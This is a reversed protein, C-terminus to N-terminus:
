MNLNYFEKREMNYNISMYCAGGHLPFSIITNIDLKSEKCFLAIRIIRQKSAKDYFGVYQQNYTSLDIPEPINSLEPKIFSYMDTQVKLMDRNSINWFIYDKGYEKEYKKMIESFYGDPIEESEPIEELYKMYDDMDKEFMDTDQITLYSVGDKYHEKVETPTFIRTMTAESGSVSCASIFFLSLIFYSIKM